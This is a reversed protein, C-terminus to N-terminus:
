IIVHILKAPDMIEPAGHGGVSDAGVYWVRDIVDVRSHVARPHEAVAACFIGIAGQVVGRVGQIPYSTGQIDHRADVRSRVVNLQGEAISVDHHLLPGVGRSLNDEVALIFAPADPQVIERDGDGVDGDLIAVVQISRFAGGSKASTCDQALVSHGNEGVHVEDVVGGRHAGSPRHEHIERLQDNVPSAKHVVGSRHFAARHHHAGRNPAEGVVDEKLGVGDVAGLILIQGAELGFQLVIARHGERHPLIDVAEDRDGGRGGGGDERTGKLPHQIGLVRRSGSLGIHERTEVEKRDDFQIVRSMRDLRRSQVFVVEFPDQRDGVVRIGGVRDGEFVIGETRVMFEDGENVGEENVVPHVMGHTHRLRDGDRRAYDFGGDLHGHPGELRM